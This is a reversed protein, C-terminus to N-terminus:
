DDKGTIILKSFNDKGNMFSSQFVDYESMIKESPFKMSIINGESFMMGSYNEM